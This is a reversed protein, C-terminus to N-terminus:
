LAVRLALLASNGEQVLTTERAPGGVDQPGSAGTLLAAWLELMENVSYAFTLLMLVLYGVLSHV